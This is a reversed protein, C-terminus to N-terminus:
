SRFESQKVPDLCGVLSVSPSVNTAAGTHRHQFGYGLIGIAQRKILWHDFSTSGSPTQYEKARQLDDLPEGHRLGNDIGRFQPTERLLESLEAVFEFIPQCRQGVLDMTQVRTPPILLVVFKGLLKLVMEFLDRTRNLGRTLIGREQQAFRLPNFFVQLLFLV